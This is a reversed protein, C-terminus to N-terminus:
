VALPLSTFARMATRIRAVAIRDRAICRMARAHVFHATACRRAMWACQQARICHPHVAICAIATETASQVFHSRFQVRGASKACFARAICACGRTGTCMIACIASQRMNQRLTCRSHSLRAIVTCGHALIHVPVHLAHLRTDRRVFQTDRHVRNRTRDRTCHTRHVHMQTCKSWISDIHLRTCGPTCNTCRTHPPHAVTHVPVDRHVGKCM